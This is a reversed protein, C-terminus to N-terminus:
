VCFMEERGGRRLPPTFLIFGRKSGAESSQLIFSLFACKPLHECCYSNIMTKFFFCMQHSTRLMKKSLRLVDGGLRRKSSSSCFHLGVKFRGGVVSTHLLPLCLQSSTPLLLFKDFRLIFPLWM